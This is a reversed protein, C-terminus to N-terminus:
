LFFEYPRVKNARLRACVRHAKLQKKSYIYQRASHQPPFNVKLEFLLLITQSSYGASLNQNLLHLAIDPRLLPFLCLVTQETFFASLSGCKHPNAKRRALYVGRNNLYPKKSDQEYM